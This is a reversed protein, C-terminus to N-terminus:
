LLVVMGSQTARYQEIESEYEALIDDVFETRLQALGQMSESSIGEYYMRRHMKVVADAAILEFQEPLTDVGLRLMLRNTITDCYHM